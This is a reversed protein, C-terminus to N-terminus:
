GTTELWALLLNVDFPKRLLLDAGGKRAESWLDDDPTGSAIAVRMTRKEARIRDLIATGLGDPLNLDLIACHQGDLQALGGAVTEAATVQYGLRSLLLVLANRIIQDDEVILVSCASKLQTPL